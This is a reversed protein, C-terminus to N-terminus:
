LFFGWTWECNSGMRVRQEVVLRGQVELFKGKDFKWVFPILYCTNQRAQSRETQMHKLEAKNYHINYKM